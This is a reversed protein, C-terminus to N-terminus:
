GLKFVCLERPVHTGVRQVLLNGMPRRWLRQKLLTDNVLVRTRGLIFISLCDFLLVGLPLATGSAMEEAQRQGLASKATVPIPPACVLQRTRPKRQLTAARSKLLM